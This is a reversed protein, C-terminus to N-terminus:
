GVFEIYDDASGGNGEFTGDADQDVVTSPIEVRFHTGDPFRALSDPLASPERTPLGLAALARRTPSLEAV